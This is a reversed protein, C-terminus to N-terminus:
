TGKEFIRLNENKFSTNNNKRTVLEIVFNSHGQLGIITTM